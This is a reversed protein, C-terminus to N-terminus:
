RVSNCDVSYSILEAGSAAFYLEWFQKVTNWAEPSLGRTSAGMVHIKYGKLPVLLRGQKAHDIMREAGLPVLAPMPLSATENVMDSFIWIEREGPAASSSTSEMLAKMRWLGGILDTGAALPTVGSAKSEFTSALQHRARNLDDTFVGHAAPTYGKILEGTSGFSETTIVSVVVRSKAPETLLLQRVGALYERFLSNNAGGAGVSGSVDILIGEVRTIEQACAVAAGLLFIALGVARAYFYTPHQKRQSHFFRLIGAMCERHAIEISAKLADLEKKMQTIEKECKEIEKWTAYKDDSWMGVVLGLLLGLMLDSGLFIKTVAGSVLEQAKKEDSQSSTSTEEPTEVSPQEVYSTSGSATTETKSLAIAGAQALEFVGWFLLGAGLGIVIAQVAKNHQVLKEFALHGAAAVALTLFMGIALAALFELGLMLFRYTHAVFSTFFVGALLCVFVKLRISHGLMKKDSTPDDPDYLQACLANRQLERTPIARELDSIDSQLSKEYAYLNQACILKSKEIDRTERAVDRGLSEFDISRRQHNKM